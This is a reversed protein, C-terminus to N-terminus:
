LFGFPFDIIGLGSVSTINPACSVPRLTVVCMCVVCFVLFFLLIHWYFVFGFVFGKTVKRKTM